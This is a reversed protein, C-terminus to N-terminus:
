FYMRNKIQLYKNITTIAIKEAPCEICLVGKKNLKAIMKKREELFEIAVGKKFIDEDNDVKKDVLKELSENEMLILAVINTKSLIPLVKMMDEAEEITDFDTFIFVLSRHREKRKLYYFAEEYNATDKTPQIHYLAEMMKNRHGVGKNAMIMNQVSTNFAMLASKDGNQNVIDSLILATNIAIDLKKQGRISYSMPRGTDILIHVHQNKEPEYQNVIPKHERATAKWNIKRYEDGSVYERLSEFSTGNGLMKLAKQGNQYRRNHCIAMRYKHLNKLNPYVKYEKNLSVKFQKMCLKLRSEYRVHLNEFTFAGRKKPEVEYQFIKKDNPLIYGKMIKDKCIFHFNPMEDKLELYEKKHGKNHVTFSIKEKEYISLKEDGIREIQFIDSDPTLFYDLILLSLCLLNYIIFIILSIGFFYAGILLTIGAGILLIFRNTVTLIIV